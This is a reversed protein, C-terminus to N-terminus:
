HILPLICGLYYSVVAICGISTRVIVLCMYKLDIQIPFSLIQIKSYLTQTANKTIYFIRFYLKIRTQLRAPSVVEFNQHVSM